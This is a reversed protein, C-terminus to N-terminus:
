VYHEPAQFVPCSPEATSWEVAGAIPVRAPPAPRRPEVDWEGTDPDQIAVTYDLTAPLPTGSPPMPFAVAVIQM